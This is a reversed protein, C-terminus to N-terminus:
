SQRPLIWKIGMKMHTIVGDKMKYRCVQMSIKAQSGRRCEGDLIFQSGMILWKMSKM